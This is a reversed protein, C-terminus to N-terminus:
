PWPLQDTASKQLRICSWDPASCCATGSASRPGPGTSRCTSIPRPPRGPRRPRGARRDLVLGSSGRLAGPRFARRGRANWPGVGELRGSPSRRSTTRRGTSRAGVRRRRGLPPDAGAVHSGVFVGRWLRRDAPRGPEAQATWREGDASFYTAGAGVAVFRDGAWVVSNLHEGEEGVQRHGWALGDRTSMRLGHLGVGVFVGGGFAVDVLTDIARVDPADDWDAGDTSTARRGRDGVGVFRGDGFAVRRLINKGSFPVYDGWNM